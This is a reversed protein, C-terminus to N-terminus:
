GGGTLSTQVTVSQCVFRCSQTHSQNTLHSLMVSGSVNVLLSKAQLYFLEITTTDQLMTISEVFYRGPSSSNSQNITSTTVYKVLFYLVLRDDDDHDEEEECHGNAPNCHSTNDLESYNNEVNEHIVDYLPDGPPSPSSQFGNGLPPLPPLPPMSLTGSSNSRNTRTLRNVAEPPIAKPITHLSGTSGTTSQKGNPLRKKKKLNRIRNVTSLRSTQSVSCQGTTLCLDPTSRVCRKRKAPTERMVMKPEDKKLAYEHELVRRQLNLWSYQGSYLILM